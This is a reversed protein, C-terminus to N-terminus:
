DDAPEKWHVTATGIVFADETATDRRVQLTNEGGTLSAGTVSDMWAQWGPSPPIDFGSLPEGNVVIEHGFKGVDYAQLQVFAETPDDTTVEFSQPATQNGAFEAWPTDLDGASEGLQTMFNVLAYNARRTM